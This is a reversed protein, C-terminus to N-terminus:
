LKGLPTTGYSDVLFHYGHPSRWLWAGSRPQTVKWRSFTKIRHEHRRTHALNGMATQGPPGGDDPPLYPMTHENDDHRSLSCSFPFFGAPTRLRIADALRAPVEYCDVAPVADTDIVPQLRVTRDGLWGRVQDLLAPGLDEVQAVGADERLSERSVHVYLTAPGLTCRRRDGVPVSGDAAADPHRPAQRRAQEAEGVLELAAQPNALVGLAKARRVDITADDGLLRLARAVVDLSMDFAAIDPGDGRGFITATGSDLDRGRWVGRREAAAKADSAALEPDATLIAADLIKELGGFPVSAVLPAVEADVRAAAAWSLRRTRAAVRRAVWTKVEGAQVRTWLVPLRHRL